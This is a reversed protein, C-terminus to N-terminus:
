KIHKTIEQKVTVVTKNAVLYTEICVFWNIRHIAHFCSPSKEIFNLLEKSVENYM